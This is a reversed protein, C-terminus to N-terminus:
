SISSFEKTREYEGCWDAQTVVPFMGMVQVNIADAGIPGISSKIPIAVVHPPHRLCQGQQQAINAPNIQKRFYRCSACCEPLEGNRDPSDIM